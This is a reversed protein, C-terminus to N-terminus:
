EVCAITFKAVDVLALSTCMEDIECRGYNSSLADKQPKTM